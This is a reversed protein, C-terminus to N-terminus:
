RWSVDGHAVLFHRRTRKPRAGRSADLAVTQPEEVALPQACVPRGGRGLLEVRGTRCLMRLVYGINDSRFANFAARSDFAVGFHVACRHTIDVTDLAEPTAAQLLQVIHRTLAGREGYRTNARVVGGATPAVRGDLHAMTTDLAALRTGVKAQETRLAQIREELREFEGALM